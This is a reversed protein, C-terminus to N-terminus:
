KPIGVWGGQWDPSAPVADTVAAVRFPHGHDDIPVPELESGDDAVVDLTATWQCDCTETVAVLNWAVTEGAEIEQPLDVIRPEGEPIGVLVGEDPLAKVRKTDLNLEFNYPRLGGCGGTLSPYAGRPPEARSEIKIHIGDKPITVKHGDQANLIVQVYNGSAPIGGNAAAWEDLNSGARPPPLQPPVTNFVWGMGMGCVDAPSPITAELSLYRPPTIWHQIARSVPQWLLAVTPIVIGTTLIPVWYKWYSKLRAKWVGAKAAPESTKPQNTENPASM